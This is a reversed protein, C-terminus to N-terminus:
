DALVALSKGFRKIIRAAAEEATLLKGESRARIRDQIMAKRSVSTAVKRYYSAFEIRRLAKEVALVESPRQKKPKTAV